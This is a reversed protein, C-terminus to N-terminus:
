KYPKDRMSWTVCVLSLLIFISVVAQPSVLRDSVNYRPPTLASLIEDNTVGLKRLKLDYYIPNKFDFNELTARKLNSRFSTPTTRLAYLILDKWANKRDASVVEIMNSNVIQWNYKQFMDPFRADLSVM